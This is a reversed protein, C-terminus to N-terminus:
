KIQTTYVPHIRNTFQNSLANKTFHIACGAVPLDKRDFDYLGLMFGLNRVDRRVSVSWTKAKNDCLFM